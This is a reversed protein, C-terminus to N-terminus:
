PQELAMELLAQRQAEPVKNWSPLSTRKRDVLGEVGEILYRDYWNYFTAKPINLQRLTRAIGLSSEEVTRIMEHKEAAPYRM